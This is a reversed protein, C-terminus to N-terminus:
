SQSTTQLVGSSYTIFPCHGVSCSQIYTSDIFRRLLLYYVSGATYLQLGERWAVGLGVYGVLSNSTANCLRLENPTSLVYIGVEFKAHNVVSM